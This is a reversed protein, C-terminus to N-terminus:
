PCPFPVSRVTQMPAIGQQARLRHDWPRDKFSHMEQMPKPSEVSHGSVSLAEKNAAGGGQGAVGQPMLPQSPAEPDQPSMGPPM